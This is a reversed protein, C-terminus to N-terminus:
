HRRNQGGVSDATTTPLKIAMPRKRREAGFRFITEDRLLITERGLGSSVIGCLVEIIEIFYSILPAGELSDRRDARRPGFIHDAVGRARDAM